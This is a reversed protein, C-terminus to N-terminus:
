PLTFYFTAGKEVEARAWIRGGHRCIIRQATALGIGTGPFEDLSHLRQFPGFLKHAYAMDFGAGDDRVFLARENDVDAVGFEIGAEPHRSTFKWANDILKDLAVRLLNRDGSATLGGAIRFTVRRDPEGAQLDAAIQKALVSLDVTECKIEVRGIRSLGLLDDILDSMRGAAARVRALYDRGRGDLTEGYEELLAASFGDMGRLPSRLDHSVSYAFAELEKNAAALDAAYRSREEEARRRDTIDKIIAAIGIPKGDPAKVLFVTLLIPVRSCDKRIYEKEYEAPEGTELVAQVKEAEYEEYERPTLEQNKKGGLLEERTYGTLECFADNVDTLTGDTDAWGIADKSSNYLGSFREQSKALEATRQRVRQELEDHAKRLADAAQKRETVDRGYWNTYGAEAVPAIRFAFTRGHHEIELDQECNAELARAVLSSWDEPAVSGAGSSRAKLLPEAARNAYLVTGNAAIRLVPHPNESPFKALDEIREAARKRETIDRCSEIIQIVQGANDFIPAATTEVFAENSEADLHTHEVTVPIGTRIVQKLPCPHARGACPADRHHSVSYCTRHVAVPDKGGALERAARNALIVHYDRDIVMTVEPIADIVTQLFPPSNQPNPAQGAASTELGAAHQRLRALEELLQTKTRHEGKVTM